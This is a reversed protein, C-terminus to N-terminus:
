AALAAITRNSPPAKLVALASDTLDAIYLERSGTAQGNAEQVARAGLSEYLLCAGARLRLPWLFEPIDPLAERMQNLLETQLESASQGVLRDVVQINPHVMAQAMLRLFYPGGDSDDLRGSLAAVSVDMLGEIDPRPGLPGMMPLRTADMRSVHKARIAEFVGLKSGFHYHVASKNGQEAARNIESLSVADIGREAFLREATSVIKAQTRISDSRMAIM